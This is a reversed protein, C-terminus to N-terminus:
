GQARFPVIFGGGRHITKYVEISIPTIVDMAELLKEPQRYMDFFIGTTGRMSDRYTDFPADSM